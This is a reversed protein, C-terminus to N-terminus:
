LNSETVTDEGRGQHRLRGCVDRRGKGEEEQVGTLGLSKLTQGHGTDRFPSPLVFPLSVGLTGSHTGSDLFVLLHYRIGGDEYVDM